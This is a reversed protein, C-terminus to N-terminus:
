LYRHACRRFREGDEDYKKGSVSGYILDNEIAEGRMPLSPCWHLKRVQTSLSLLYKTDDKLYASNTASKKCCLLSGWRCTASLKGHGNEDLTIVEILGDVPITTGDAATLEEAAYLGFSVDFIEGNNGM